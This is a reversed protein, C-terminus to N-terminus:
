QDNQAKELRDDWRFEEIGEVAKETCLEAVRFSLGAKEAMKQMDATRVQSLCIESNARRQELTYQYIEEFKRKDDGQFGTHLYSGRIQTSVAPQHLIRRERM